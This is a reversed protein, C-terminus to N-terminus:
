RPAAPSMRQRIWARAFRLDRKVTAPSLSLMDGIQEYNFGGFYHLEIIDAKREDQAALATIAADLDLVDSREDDRGAIRSEIFTRMERGGGRKEAKRAAAHNVLFRRMM